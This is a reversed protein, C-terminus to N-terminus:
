GEDEGVRGRAFPGGRRLYTEEGFRIQLERAETTGQSDKRKGQGGSQTSKGM